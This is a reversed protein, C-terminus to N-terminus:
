LSLLLECTEDFAVELPFTVKFDARKNTTRAHGADSLRWRPLTKVAFLVVHLNCHSYAPVPEGSAGAM